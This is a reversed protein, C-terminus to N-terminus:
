ENRAYHSPPQGVHRSFAVSFTSTSAYGVRDAVESVSLGDKRLMEKALEMRWRLVYEMPAHGVTRVFREFFASRSLAAIAALQEVTWARKVNADILQSPWVISQM